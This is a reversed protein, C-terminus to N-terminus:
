ACAVTSAAARRAQLMRPLGALDPCIEVAEWAGSADILLQAAAAAQDSGLECLLLGGPRLQAPAAACLRAILALGGDAAFLARAPEYDRVDAPLSAATAPDIYPLNALVLDFPGQAAVPALLDGQYFTVRDAVGLREANAAAVALAPAEIDCALLQGEPWEAALTLALAGSGTGVDVIKAAGGRQRLWALATEVLLETEPRPILVEPGVSFRRGYFERHGCLYAVPEHRGRRQVLARLQAREHAELPQDYHTYLYIRDRRLVHALLVEADLRATEIGRGAFYGQTWSLIRALTWPEATSM